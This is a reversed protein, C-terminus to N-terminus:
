RCIIHLINSPLLCFHDKEYYIYKTTILLVFITRQPVSCLVRFYTNKM